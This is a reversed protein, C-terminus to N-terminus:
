AVLSFFFNENIFGKITKVLGDLLKFLVILTFIGLMALLGYHEIFKVDGLVEKNTILLRVLYNLGAWGVILVANVVLHELIHSVKIKIEDINIWKVKETKDTENEKVM